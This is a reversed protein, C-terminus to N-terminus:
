MLNTKDLVFCFYTHFMNNNGFILAIIVLFINKSNAASKLYKKESPIKSYYVTM